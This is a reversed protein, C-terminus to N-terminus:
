APEIVIARLAHELDPYRFRFGLEILKVPQVRQSALLLEDAVEGLVLRLAFAPAPFLAPRRLASALARTFGANQVPNPAVVNVAGSFREDAIAARIVGVVDELAIWSMWQQGSGLRGGLGLKFPTLMKPLAGGRASLIMGFRLLVTRVGFSQARLSEAEWDRALKALFGAGNPSAETLVQEGCDGYSGIASAALFARPKRQLRAVADVLVRTSGLRSSRLLNKREQTWRTEAIGAGSLHIVADAGEMATLDVVAAMPDWHVYGSDATGGPRVFRAVTHGHSCFDATAATGVLGSAGTILVKLRSEKRQREEIEVRSFQSDFASKLAREVLRFGLKSPTLARSATGSNKLSKAQTM